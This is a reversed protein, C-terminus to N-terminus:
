KPWPRPPQVDRGSHRTYRTYFHTYLTTSIIPLFLRLNNITFLKSLHSLPRYRRNALGTLTYCGEVPEFGTREAKRM